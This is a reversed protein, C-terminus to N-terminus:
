KTKYKEKITNKFFLIIRFKAKLNIEVDNNKIKWNSNKNYFVSVIIKAKKQKKKRWLDFCKSNDLIM